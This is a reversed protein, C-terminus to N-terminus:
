RQVVLKCNWSGSLEVPASGPKDGWVDFTGSGGSATKVTINSAETGQGWTGGPPTLDTIIVGGERGGKTLNYNGVGQDPQVLLSLQLLHGDVVGTVLVNLSHQAAVTTCTVDSVAMAGSFAGSSGAQGSNGFKPTSVVAQASTQSATGSSGCGAIGILLLAGIFARRRGIM